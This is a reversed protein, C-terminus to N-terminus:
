CALKEETALRKAAKRRQEKAKRKRNKNERMTEIKEAKRKYYDVMNQHTVNKFYNSIPDKATSLAESLEKPIILTKVAGDTANCLFVGASSVGAVSGEQVTIDMIESSVEINKILQLKDDLVILRSGAVVVVYFLDDKPLICLRRVPDDGLKESQAISRGNEINWEHVISDGGSSFVRNKYMAISSVYASHGLCFSQVVFAQPYRSVRIKEDRDAALLFRGDESVAVDLVMTIASSLPEGEYPSDEGNMDVYGSKENEEVTYRCVNGARDGVIIHSNDQDFTISTPAKPIRFGRRLRLTRSDEQLRSALFIKSSACILLKDDLSHLSAM